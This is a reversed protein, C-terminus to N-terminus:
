EWWGVLCGVKEGRYGNGVVWMRECVAWIDDGVEWELGGLVCPM